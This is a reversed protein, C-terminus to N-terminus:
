LPHHKCSRYQSPPQFLIANAPSPLPHLPYCRLSLTCQCLRALPTLFKILSPMSFSFLDALFVFPPMSTAIAYPFPECLIRWVSGPPYQPMTRLGELLVKLGLVGGCTAVLGAVCLKMSLQVGALAHHLVVAPFVANSAGATIGGFAADGLLVRASLRSRM